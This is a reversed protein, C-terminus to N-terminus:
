QLIPQRRATQPTPGRNNKRHCQHRCERGGVDEGITAGDIGDATSSFIHGSSRKPLITLPITVLERRVHAYYGEYDQGFWQGCIKCSIDGAIETRETPILKLDTRCHGTSFANRVHQMASLRTAFLAECCYCQNSIVLSTVTLCGHEGMNDCEGQSTATPSFERVVQWV